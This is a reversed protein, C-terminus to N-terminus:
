VDLMYPHEGSVILSVAINWCPILTIAPSEISCCVLAVVIVSVFKGFKFLVAVSINALFLEVPRTSYRSTLVIVGSVFVKTVPKVYSLTFVNVIDLFSPTLKGAVIETNDPM